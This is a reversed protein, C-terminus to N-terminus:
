KAKELSTLVDRFLENDRDRNLRVALNHRLSTPPKARLHLSDPNPAPFDKAPV